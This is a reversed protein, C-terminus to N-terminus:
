YILMWNSWPLGGEVAYKWEIRNRISIFKRCYNCRFRRGSLEPLPPVRPRGSAAETAISLFSVHSAITPAGYSNAPVSTGMGSDHFISFPNFLTGADDQVQRGEENQNEQRM